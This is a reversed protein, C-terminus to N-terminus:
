GCFFIFHIKKFGKEATQNFTLLTLISAFLTVMHLEWQLVRVHPQATVEEGTGRWIRGPEGADNRRQIKPYVTHKNKDKSSECSKLLTCDKCSGRVCLTHSMTQGALSSCVFLCCVGQAWGDCHELILTYTNTM